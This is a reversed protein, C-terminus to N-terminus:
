ENNTMPEQDPVGSDPETIVEEVLPQDNSAEPEEETEEAATEEDANGPVLEKVAEQEMPMKEAPMEESISKEPTSAEEAATEPAEEVPQSLPIVQLAPTEGSATEEPIGAEETVAESAEEASQSPPIVQLEPVEVSSEEAPSPEESPNEDALMEEEKSALSADYQYVTVEERLIIKGNITWSSNMSRVVTGKLSKDGTPVTSKVTSIYEPRHEGPKTRHIEVGYEETMADEIDELLNLLFKQDAPNEAKEARRQISAYVKAMPKLLDTLIIGNLYRDKEKIEAQLVSVTNKQYRECHDTSERCARTLTEVAGELERIQQYVAHLESGVIGRVEAGTLEPKPTEMQHVDTSDTTM